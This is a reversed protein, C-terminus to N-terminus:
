DEKGGNWMLWLCRLGWLLMLPIVYSHANAQAMLHDPISTITNIM